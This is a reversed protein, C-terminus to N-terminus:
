TPQIQQSLTTKPSDICFYTSGTWMDQYSYDALDYQAIAETNNEHDQYYWLRPLFAGAQEVRYATFYTLFEETPFLNERKDMPNYIVFRTDPTRQRETVVKIVGMLVVAHMGEHADAQRVFILPGFHKLLQEVHEAIAAEEQTPLRPVDRIERWSTETQESNIITAEMAATLASFGMASYIEELKDPALGDSEIKAQNWFLWRWCSSQKIASACKRYNDKYERENNTCCAAITPAIMWCDNKKQRHKPLNYILGM